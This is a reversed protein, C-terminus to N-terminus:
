AGRWRARLLLHQKKPLCYISSPARPPAQPVPLPNCILASGTGPICGTSIRSKQCSTLSVISPNNLHAYLVLCYKPKSTVTVLWMPLTGSLIPYRVSVYRPPFLFVFLLVDLLRISFTCPIRPPVHLLPIIDTGFSSILDPVFSLELLVPRLEGFRHPHDGAALPTLTPFTSM